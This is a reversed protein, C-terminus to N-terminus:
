RARNVTSNAVYARDDNASREATDFKRRRAKDTIGHLNADVPATVRIGGHLELHVRHLTNVRLSASVLLKSFSLRPVHETLM